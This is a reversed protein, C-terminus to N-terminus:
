FTNRADPTLIPDFTFTCFLTDIYAPTVQSSSTKIPGETTKVFILVGRELTSRFLNKSDVKVVRINKPINFLLNDLLSDPILVCVKGKFEKIKDFYDISKAFTICNNKINFVSCTKGYGKISELIKDDIFM